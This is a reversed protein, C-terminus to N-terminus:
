RQVDLIIEVFDEGDLSNFDQFSSNKLYEQRLSVAALFMRLRLITNNLFLLIRNM